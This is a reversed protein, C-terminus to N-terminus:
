EIVDRIILDNCTPIMDTLSYYEWSDYGLVFSELIYLCDTYVDFRCGCDACVYFHTPTSLKTLNHTQQLLNIM